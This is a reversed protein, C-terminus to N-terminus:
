SDQHIPRKTSRGALASEVFEGSIKASLTKTWQGHAHVNLHQAGIAEIQQCLAAPHAVRITGTWHGHCLGAREGPGPLNENMATKRSVAVSSKKLGYLSKLLKYVFREKGSALFGPAQRVYIVEDVPSHLFATEVDM